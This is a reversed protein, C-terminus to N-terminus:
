PARPHPGFKPQALAPLAGALALRRIRTPPIRPICVGGPNCEGPGQRWAPPPDPSGDSGTVSGVPQPHAVDGFMGGGVALDIQGDHDVGPAPPHDAPRDGIVDAGLEDDVGQLHGDPPAAAPRGLRAGSRGRDLGRPRETSARAAPTNPEIPVM